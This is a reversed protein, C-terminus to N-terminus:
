LGVRQLPKMERMGGYVVLEKFDLLVDSIILM